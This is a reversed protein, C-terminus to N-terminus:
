ADLKNLAKPNRLVVHRSKPLAITAKTELQTLTRSVTEITLGLYDAIDQRSMPLDVAEASQLRGAMELLFYAVREEASKVLLLMRKQARQLESATFSWLKRAMDPERDALAVMASRKVVLIVSNDIAEASFEHEDGLELGFAEGPFYFGGIQRRGDDFIKYTRVAGSVVKYVYDAPENEGYIESNRTFSMRAGMLDMQDVLAAMGAPAPATRSRALAPRSAVAPMSTQMLM